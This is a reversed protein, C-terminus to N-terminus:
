FQRPLDDPNPGPPEREIWYTRVEPDLRSSLSDKGLMRRLLGIPTVVLFYILGMVVPSVIKGLLIGLQFWLRNLPALASPALYALPLLVVGPVVYWLSWHGLIVRLVIPIAIAMVVAFGKVSGPEGVQERGFDEHLRGSM